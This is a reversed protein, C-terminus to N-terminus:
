TLVCAHIAILFASQIKLKVIATM